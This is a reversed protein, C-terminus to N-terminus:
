VPRRVRGGRWGEALEQARVNFAPPDLRHVLKCPVPDDSDAQEGVGPRHRENRFQGASVGIEQQEIGPFFDHACEMVSPFM